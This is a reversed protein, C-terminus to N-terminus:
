FGYQKIRLCFRSGRRPMRPTAETWKELRLDPALTVWQRHLLAQSALCPQFFVVVASTSGCHHRGRHYFKCPLPVLTLPFLCRKRTWVYSRAAGQIAESPKSRGQGDHSHLHGHSHGGCCLEDGEDSDEEEEEEEGEEEEAILYGALHISTGTAKGETVLSFETYSDLILDLNTTEQGGERLSCILVEETGM